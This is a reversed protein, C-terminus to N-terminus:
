FSVKIGLRIARGPPTADRSLKGFNASTIFSNTATNFGTYLTHFSDQAGFLYNAHNLVNIFDSRIEVFGKDFIRFKKRLSADFYFNSPSRLSALTRSATGLQPNDLSGPVTFAAPNLYGGGPTLGFPDQKWNPNILPVGPVINPRVFVDQVAYGGSGPQGGPLTSFYYGNVGLRIYIPYGSQATMLGSTTWGGFIFDLVKNKIPLLHNGGVPLDYSYGISVKHPIDFTSISREAKLDYPNQPRAFGFADSLGNNSTDTAGSSVDDISKSWTYSGNVLLGNSLRQRFTVYLAHYTSSGNRDFASDIANNYFQQYPRLSEQLTMNGLGYQNAINRSVFNAHSKIGQVLAGFSPLNYNIPTGFLHTGKQGSYAVEIASNHGVQMQLSGSWLQVYPVVDSQDVYPLNTGSPFTFLPGGSLPIAPAIPGVPNTIYNVWASSSVGGQGNAISQSPVNLDPIINNGQGTLPTHVLSYAARLTMFSYPAYAIGVRPEFGKYNIPWLYKQQGNEGSFVFAGTVPKGNLTGTVTPDFSGQRNYKEYRPTELNYRMGLNLTLNPRVKRSDQFYGSYYHWRYYFPVVTTKVTYSNIAGLILSAFPSGGNAGLSTESARFVYGGGYLNSVDTRNLQFFRTDIGFKFSHNGHIFSFDDAVGLNTDLSTGGDVIAGGSGVTGYVTNFTPFGVGLVAAVLGQQAGFDQALADSSPGRFRNSRTYTARFENTKTGSLIHTETLILNQSNYTDTVIPNAPSDPGLYSYRTGSVPVRTFRFALQDKQTLSHDIRFSYRNDKNVVGRATLANNGDSEYLGDPRLFVAYPSPNSPTPLLSLIYRATANKALQASLDNKPVVVYQSTNLRQGTPFGNANLKFQYYINSIRPAALAAEIGQNRLITQNLLELSNNFRGALEDPTPLRSRQFTQDSQRLPEVSVFFFTKDHGNYLKKGGEGFRPLYVPGSVSLDFLNQHRAPGFTSNTNRAQLAPDTHQWGFSTHFQNSGGRSSQNIIGGGTRGYQAPLGNQQITVERVTDGSFTVGTRPYGSLSIDSGDVLISGSGPRGGSISLSGGPTNAQTFIGPNESQIGGPYQPDGQVGASLMIAGLASREPYPIDSLLKSEVTNSLTASDPTVLPTEATVQVTESANGVDLRINATTVQATFVDLNAISASRFGEKEVTLKYQGPRLSAVNYAGTDTTTATVTANTELNTISVIAGPVVASNADIVQGTITGTNTQASLTTCFALLCGVILLLRKM